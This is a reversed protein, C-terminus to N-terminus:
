CKNWGHTVDYFTLYFRTKEASAANLKPQSRFGYLGATISIFM